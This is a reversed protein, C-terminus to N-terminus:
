LSASGSLRRHFCRGRTDLSRAPSANSAAVRGPSAIASGRDGSRACRPPSRHPVGGPAHEPLAWARWRTACGASAVSTGPPHGRQHRFPHPRPHRHGGPGNQPLNRPGHSKRPGVRALALDVADRRTTPRRQSPGTGHAGRGDAPPPGVVDSPRRYAPSHGEIAAGRDEAVAVAPLTARLHQASPRDTAPETPVERRFATPPPAHGGLELNPSPRLRDGASRHPLRDASVENRTGGVGVPPSRRRRVVRFRDGATRTM